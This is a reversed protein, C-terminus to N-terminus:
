VHLRRTVTQNMEQWKTEIVKSQLRWFKVWNEVGVRILHIFEEEVSSEVESLFWNKEDSGKKIVV